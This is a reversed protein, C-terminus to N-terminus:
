VDKYVLVRMLEIDISKFKLEQHDSNTFEINGSVFEGTSFVTQNQESFRCIINSELGDSSSGTVILTLFLCQYTVSHFSYILNSYLCSCSYKNKM